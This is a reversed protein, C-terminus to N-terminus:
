ESIFNLFEDGLKLVLLDGYIDEDYFDLTSIFCLQKSQLDSLVNNIVVKDKMLYSYNTKLYNNVFDPRNQNPISNNDVQCQQLAKLTEIHLVTFDRLMNLFIHKKTDDINENKISNVVANVYLAVKDEEIDSMAGQGASLLIQAFNPISEIKTLDIEDKINQLKDEFIEEWKERRQQWQRSAYEDYLTQFFGTIPNSHMIAKTVGAGVNT